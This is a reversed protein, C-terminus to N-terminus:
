EASGTTAQGEEAANSSDRDVMDHDPEEVLELTGTFSYGSARLFQAFATLMDDITSEDCLDIVIRDVTGSEQGIFKPPDRRYIFKYSM